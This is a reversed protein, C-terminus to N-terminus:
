TCPIPLTIGTLLEKKYPCIFLVCACIFSACACTATFSPDTYQSFTSHYWNIRHDDLCLLQQITRHVHVHIEHLSLLSFYEFVVLLLKTFQNRLRVEANGTCNGWDTRGFTEWRYCGSSGNDTSTSIFEPSVGRRNDAMTHLTCRYQSITCNILTLWVASECHTDSM